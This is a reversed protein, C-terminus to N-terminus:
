TLSKKLVSAFSPKQFLSKIKNFEGTDNVWEKTTFSGKYRMKRGKQNSRLKTKNNMKLRLDVKLDGM